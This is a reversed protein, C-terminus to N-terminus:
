PLAFAVLTDSLVAGRVDHGGAAIVIYQKGNAGTFTMPTARASTPLKGRWVLKGTATEYAKLWPDFTAGLFILGGATALPGGLAPSGWEAHEGLRPLYGMPVKWKEKGTNSDLGILLGFPPPSCPAGKASLLFNRQMGYPTGEQSATEWDPRDKRAQALDARPVLRAVAALRNYPVILTGSQKDFAFGGWAMGGINGPFLL